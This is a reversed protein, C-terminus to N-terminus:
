KRVVVRWGGVPPSSSATLTVQTTYNSGLGNGRVITDVAIEERTTKDYINVSIDETSLSHTLTVSTGTTWDAAYTGGSFSGVYSKMAAVSPAQDTENGATTNLVAATRARTATFYQNTAGPLESIDDTDLVVISTLGNVSQVPAAAAAGAATVFGSPNSADYKGALATSVASSIPKDADSTNDVNSLGVAAKNLTQWSKTGDWYQGVTGFSIPPEKSNFTSWDTSSLYGNASSTAQALNITPTATPDGTVTLPASASVLTVTGAGAGSAWEIGDETVNVRLVSLANGSYLPLLAAAAGAATTAGTGGSTIPLIGTVDTTLSVSNQGALTGLGNGTVDTLPGALKSTAIAASTAIDSNVISNSLLLSSYFINSIPNLLGDIDKNTLIQSADETVVVGDQGFTINRNAGDLGVTLTLDLDEVASALSLFTQPQNPTSNLLGLASRLRFASSFVEVAAPNDDQGLSLTGSGAGGLDPSAPEIVIDEQSRIALLETSDTIFTAGLSDIKTLNYKADASLDDAIKLKLYRSLTTAM